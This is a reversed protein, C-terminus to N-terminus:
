RNVIYKTTQTSTSTTLKLFYLGNDLNRTYIQHISQFTPIVEVLVVEGKEDFLTITVDNHFQNSMINIRGNGPNPFLQFLDQNKSEIGSASSNCNERNTIAGVNSTGSTRPAYHFDHTIWSSTTGDQMLAPNDSCPTIYEWPTLDTFSFGTMASPAYFNSGDFEDSLANHLNEAISIDFPVPVTNHLTINFPYTNPYDDTPTMIINSRIHANDVTAFGFGLITNFFNPFFASITAEQDITQSGVAGFITNHEFYISRLCNPGGLAETVGQWMRLAPMTNQFINNFIFISDIQTFRRQELNCVTECNEYTPGGISCAGENALLIGSPGIPIDPDAPCTLWNIEEGQTGYIVNNRIVINASNDCYLNTPNDHLQNDYALGFKTNHFNLGEGRSYAVENKRSIAYTCDKFKLGSPWQCNPGPELHENGVRSSRLFASNEVLITDVDVALLSFSKVSDVHIGQILINSQADDSNLLVGHIDGYKLRLNKVVIHSGRLRLLHNSAFDDDRGRLTVDGIGEISINKYTGDREYQSPSQSFGNPLYYEGPLLRILGYGHGGHVGLTGFPLLDAAKGLSAVPADLTGSNDDDGDVSVYITDTIRYPGGNIIPNPFNWIEQGIVM